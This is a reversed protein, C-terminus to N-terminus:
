KKESKESSEAKEGNKETELKKKLEEKGVALMLKIRNLQNVESAGAQM